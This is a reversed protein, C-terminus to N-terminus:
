IKEEEKEDIITTEVPDVTSITLRICLTEPFNNEDLDIIYKFEESEDSSFVHIFAQKIGENKNFFDTIDNTILRCFFEAFRNKHEESSVCYDLIEKKSMKSFDINNEM